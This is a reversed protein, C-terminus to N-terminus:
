LYKKKQLPFSLLEVVKKINPMVAKKLCLPIVM